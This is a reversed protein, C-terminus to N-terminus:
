FFAAEEEAQQAVKFGGAAVVDRLAAAESDSLGLVRQVAERKAEDGEQTVYGSYLDAVEEAQEWKTGGGPVAAECSVVNNLSKAAEGLKRQRLYSVAQVLQTRKRDRAQEEVVKRAKAAELGLDAPLKELMFERDFTGSGDTLRTVVEQRFLNARVDDSLLSRVEVGGEALELVQAATLKGQAKAAQMQQILRQNTFGRIIKKANEEPLGMQKRLAELQAERDPTLTGGEGVMSQVQNKFAQEALGQHVGYVDMQSLGLLDGLQSLRAFESEDRETVMTVGMPGQMVDGTMCYLLFNRYIDLRDRLELDKALTVDKQSRMVAGSDGVREGGSRAAAAVQAKELSKIQEGQAAEEPKAEAAAAEAAAPAAEGREAAEKEAAEQKAAEERAKQMMEMIQRQQEAEEAEKKKEEETKLDEVLPAVVINSFFVLRKLEKSADLRNRQNRSKSIYQLFAKRAADDIVERAVARDMRLDNFRQQVRRRDETSFADIGAGLADVVADRFLGSTAEKHIADRDEPQICLLRQLRQLEEDDEDTLRKKELLTALKQRYLSEHLAKAADADFRMKDVLESLVDAKSPAADLRGSTFEERLLRRYTKEKVEEEVGAAERAGLGMLTRLDAAEGELADTFAGDAELREELYVRFLERLDKARGEVEGWSGGLVSTPGVGAVVEPDNALAALGRNFEVAAKLEAVAGSNDRVRSRRKVVEIARDFCGEVRTRAAEKMVAAAEDAPLRVQEQYARLAALFARDAQLEGGLKAIHSKFLTRANDRKAVFIQADSLGFVSQWPLLFAAQRDGFTQNSVYILKQFTKRAEIDEGRSGAELRGRLVRRGVDLHVPAADVDDLALAAKFGQILLHENGALPADGPPVVAEVFTGYIAKLEDASSVALRTGYKAEIAAVQERTLTSPDELSVLLNALEIMAASSRREKLKLAVLGGLAAGAAATPLGALAAQLGDM